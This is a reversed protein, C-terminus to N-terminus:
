QAEPYKSNHVVVQKERNAGSSRSMVSASSDAASISRGCRSSTLPRVRYGSVLLVSGAHMSLVFMSEIASNALFPV